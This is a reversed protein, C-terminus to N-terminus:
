LLKYRASRAVFGAAAGTFNQIYYLGKGAAIYAPQGLKAAYYLTTSLGAVPLLASLVEGDLPTGPSSTKAIFAGIGSSAIFDQAHANLLIAGNVNAAPSFVTLVASLSGTGDSWSGTSAIPHSLSNITAPNLDISELLALSASDLTVTGSLNNDEVDGAGLTLKGTIPNATLNTIVIGDVAAPLKILKGPKMEVDVEGTSLSRVRILPTGTGSGEDYRIVRTRTHFIQVATASALSFNETKM